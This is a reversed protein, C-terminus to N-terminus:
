KVELKGVRNEMVRIRNEILSFAETISKFGEEMIQTRERYASLMAADKRSMGCSSTNSELDNHFEKNDKMLCWDNQLFLNFLM